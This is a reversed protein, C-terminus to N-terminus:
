GADHQGVGVHQVHANQGVVVQPGVEEAAQAVDHQVLRVLVAADKARLHGAHQAAQAADAGEVAALRLEDGGRGSDGVRGLVEAQERPQLGRHHIVIARGVARPVEREPIRGEHIPRARGAAAGVGLGCREEHFQHLLAHAADTEGAGAAHGLQDQAVGSFRQLLGRRLQNTPDLGVAGAIQRPLPPLDLLFKEAAVQQRHGGGRRQLQANVHAMQVGSQQHAIRARHGAEPLLGAAGAAAFPGRQGHEDAQVIGQILIEHTVRPLQKAARQLVRENVGIVDVHQQPMQGARRVLHGQRHLRLLAAARGGEVVLSQETGAEHLRHHLQLPLPRQVVAGVAPEVPAAVVRRLVDAQARGAALAEDQEVFGVAVARQLLHIRRRCRQPRMRPGDVQMLPLGVQDGLVVRLHLAGDHTRHFHVVVGLRPFHVVHADDARQGVPPQARDGGVQALHPHGRLDDAVPPQLLGRLRHQAVLPQVHRRLGEVRHRQPPVHGRLHSPLHRPSPQIEQAAQVAHLVGGDGDQGEEGHAITPVDAPKGRRAMWIRLLRLDEDVIAKRAAHADGLLSELQQRLQPPGRQLHHAVAGAGVAAGTADDAGLAAAAVFRQVLLRRDADQM